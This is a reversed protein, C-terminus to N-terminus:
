GPFDPIVRAAPAPHMAFAAGHLLLLLVAQGAGAAAYHSGGQATIAYGRRM